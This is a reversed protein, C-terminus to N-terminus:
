STIRSGSYYGVFKGSTGGNVYFGGIYKRSKDLKRTVIMVKSAGSSRLNGEVLKVYDNGVEVVMGVHNAIRNIGGNWRIVAIDGPVPVYNVNGIKKDGQYGNYGDGYTWRAAHAYSYGGKNLTWTNNSLLGYKNYINWVFWSCWDYSYNSSPNSPFKNSSKIENLTYGDFSKAFQVMPAYKKAFFERADLKFNLKASIKKKKNKVMYKNIGGTIYKEEYCISKFM